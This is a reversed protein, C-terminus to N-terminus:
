CLFVKLRYILFTKHKLSKLVQDMAVVPMPLQYLVQEKSAASLNVKTERGNM